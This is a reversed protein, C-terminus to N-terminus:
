QRSLKGIFRLYLHYWNSLKRHLYRPQQAFTPAITQSIWSQLSSLWRSPAGGDLRVARRWSYYKSIKGAARTAVELTSVNEFREEAPDIGRHQPSTWINQQRENVRKKRPNIIRPKRYLKTKTKNTWQDNRHFYSNWLRLVCQLIKYFKPALFM